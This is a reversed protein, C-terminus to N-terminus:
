NGTLTRRQLWTGPSGAVTCVWAEIVYKSAASGLESPAANHVEDGVTFTGASPVVGSFYVRHDAIRHPWKWGKYTNWATQWDVGNIANTVTADFWDGEEYLPCLTPQTINIGEAANYFKNRRSWVPVSSNSGTNFRVGYSRGGADVVNEVMELDGGAPDVLVAALGAAAAGYRIENGLLYNGRASIRVAINNANGGPVNVLRNNAVTVGTYNVGVQLLASPNTATYSKGDVVNGVIVGGTGVNVDGGVSVCGIGIGDKVGLVLNDELVFNSVGQEVGIHISCTINNAYVKCGIISGGEANTSNLVFSVDKPASAYCNLIRARAGQAFVAGPCDNFTCDTAEPEDAGTGFGVAGNYNTGGGPLSTFRCQRVKGRQNSVGARWWLFRNNLSAGATGTADFTGGVFEVDAATVEFMGLTTGGTLTPSATFKLVAGADCQFRVSSAVTIEAGVLWTGKPVRVVGSGIALGAAAIANTIATTCTAGSVAGYRRIDGVPYRQDTVGVEGTRAVGADTGVSTGMRSIAWAVIEDATFNGPPQGLGAAIVANEIVPAGEQIRRGSQM